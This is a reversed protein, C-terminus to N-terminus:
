TPRSGPRRRWGGTWRRARAWSTTPWPPAASPARSWSCPPSGRAVFEPERLAFALTDCAGRSHGIVVLPEPGADAAARFAARIADRNEEATAHSSPYIAHIAAAPVGRAELERINQAFYGPKRESRFGGVLVYRLRRARAEVAAPIRLRGAAAEDFWGRFDAPDVAPAPRGRRGARRRDPRSTRHVGHRGGPPSPLLPPGAAVARGRHVM